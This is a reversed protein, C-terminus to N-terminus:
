ASRNKEYLIRLGELTLDPNIEHPRKIFRSMILGYGGTIVVMFRCNTEGEIEELVREVAGATGYFLGSRICGSTDTGLASSPQEIVIKKLKSTGKDLMNNMLGLGPIIAGGIYNADQDVATITTATGFDVVAVPAKYIECAGVTNAIRDTGLEEPTNIKFRLGTNIRHSVMLVEVDEEKDFLKKFMDRFVATHSIVVSSIIVSFCNKEIHNESLFDSLILKYENANKLPYTDIKQVILGTKTFFGISILSNGIDVAILM